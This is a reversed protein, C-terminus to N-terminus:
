SINLNQVDTLYYVTSCKETLPSAGRSPGDHSFYVEM